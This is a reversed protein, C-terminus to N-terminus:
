SHTLDRMMTSEATLRTGWHAASDVPWSTWTTVLQYSKLHQKPGLVGSVCEGVTYSVSLSVSHCVPLSLSVSQCVSQCVSINISLCIVSVSVSQCVLQCVSMNISLCIVSLCIVSVSVSLSQWESMVWENVWECPWHLDINDMHILVLCVLWEAEGHKALNGAM